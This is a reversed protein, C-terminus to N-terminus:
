IQMWITLYFDVGELHIMYNRYERPERNLLYPDWLWHSERSQHPSYHPFLLLWPGESSQLTDCAAQNSALHNSDQEKTIINNIQHFLTVVHAFSFHFKFCILNLTLFFLFFHLISLSFLVAMVQLCRRVEQELDLGIWGVQMYKWDFLFSYLTVTQAGLDSKCHAEIMQSIAEEKSSSIEIPFAEGVECFYQRVPFDGLQM